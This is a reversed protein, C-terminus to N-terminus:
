AASPAEEVGVGTMLQRMAAAFAERFEEESLRLMKRHYISVLGHSVAWFTRGVLEPDDPKLIGADMCERVRDLWFQDIGAVLKRIGEPLEELGLFETYSYLIEYYRPHELAFNMYGAGALSFREEPTRGGLAPHLYQILTRYGEGVVELLVQEKGLFHRYLAPATVGVSRALKRMSFGEFGDDLYLDCACTLIRDRTKDM